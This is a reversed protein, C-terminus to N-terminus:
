EPLRTVHVKAIRRGDMETVEFRLGAADVADGPAPLRSLHSVLFGAVTEYPGDPLTVGHLERQGAAYDKWWSGALYGQAVCEIPITPGKRVLM